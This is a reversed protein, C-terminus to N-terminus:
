EPKTISFRLFRIWTEKDAPGHWCQLGVRDTEDNREPLDREFAKHFEGTANPQFEATAKNGEVRFRLVVHETELPMNGPFVCLQGDIREMVFKVLYKDGQMWYIGAQQFQASYPQSSKLEVTVVFNGEAIKPPKRFLINRVDTATNPTPVMKIELADRTIRWDEPVERLWTWGDRLKERFPEEFLITEASIVFAPFFLLTTFVLFVRKTM